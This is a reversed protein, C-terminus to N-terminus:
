HQVIPRENEFQEGGHQRGDDHHTNRVRREEDVPVGLVQALHLDLFGGDERGDRVGGLLVRRM